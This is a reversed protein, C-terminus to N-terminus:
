ERRPQRQGQEKQRLFVGKHKGHFVNRLMWRQRTCAHSFYCFLKCPSYVCVLFSENMTRQYWRSLSPSVEQKMRLNLVTHNVTRWGRCGYRNEWIQRLTVSWAAPGESAGRGPAPRGRGVDRRPMYLGGSGWLMMPNKKSYPHKEKLFPLTMGKGATSLCCM